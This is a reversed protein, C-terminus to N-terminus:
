LPHEAILRALAITKGDDLAARLAVSGDEAIHRQWVLTDGEYCASRYAIELERIRAGQWAECSFLSALARIYAVNNMHGGLDIDTSRVTYRAFEDLGDDPMRTFPEDWVPEPLAADGSAFVDAMPHLRGSATDLVTWETKGAVLPAEGQEIIYDRNARLKGPSEPWTSLTVRELMKPRRFFRVRTRVALWFLGRSSLVDIGNGLACAHETAIDMFLAFTDPVGLTAASDCMGPLVTLEKTLKCINSMHM